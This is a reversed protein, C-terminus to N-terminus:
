SFSRTEGRRLAEILPEPYIHNEPQDIRSLFPDIHITPGKKDTAQPHISFHSQEFWRIDVM